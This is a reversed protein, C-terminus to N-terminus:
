GQFAQAQGAVNNKQEYYKAIEENISDIVEQIHSDPNFQIAHEFHKIAEFGDEPNRRWTWLKRYIDGYHVCNLFNWGQQKVKQDMLRKNQETKFDLKNIEYYNFNYICIPIEVSVETNLRNHVIGDYRYGKSRRFLRISKGYAIRPHLVWMPNSLFNFIQFSYADVKDDYLLAHIQNKYREDIYEDADIVLIWENNALKLSANRAASFDDCWKFDAYKDAAWKAYVKTGDTSGTDLVCIEDVLPRMKQISEPLTLIEDRVMYCASIKMEKNGRM